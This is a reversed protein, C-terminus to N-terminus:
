PEGGGCLGSGWYRFCSWMMKAANATGIKATENTIMASM